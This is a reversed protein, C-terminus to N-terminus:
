LSGWRGRRGRELERQCLWLTPCQTTSSAGIETSDGPHRRGQEAGQVAGREQAEPYGGRPRVKAERPHGRNQNVDKGGKKVRETFASRLGSSEM